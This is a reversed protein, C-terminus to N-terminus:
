GPMVVLSSNAVDKRHPDPLTHGMLEEPPFLFQFPLHVREGWHAETHRHEPQMHYLIDIGPLYGCRLLSEYMAHTDQWSDHGGADLYIRLPLFQCSNTIEKLMKRRNWWFSSSLAAVKSFIEPHKRAIYLSVLGGLSSGMLGTHAADPKTRYQKDVYPKIEEIMFEAYEDAGGGAGIGKFHPDFSPTYDFLRGRGRNYIGVAIIEDMCGSLAQMDIVQHVGWSQGKFSEAPDFLNQGDHIYCVPYRKLSNEAYSPPLYIVLPTNFHHLYELTGQRSFFCPFIDRTQGARIWYNPGISWVDDDILAKFEIVPEQSVFRYEWINGENWTAMQGQEWSFPPHSGRFYLAKQPGTDYHVRITTWQQQLM